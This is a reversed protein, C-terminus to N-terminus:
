QRCTLRLSPQHQLFLHSDASGALQDVLIKVVEAVGEMAVVVAGV